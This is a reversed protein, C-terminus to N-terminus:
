IISYLDLGNVCLKASHKWCFDGRDTIMNKVDSMPISFEWRQAMDFDTWFPHLLDILSQGCSQMNKEEILVVCCSSFSATLRQQYTVGRWVISLKNARRSQRYLLMAIRSRSRKSRPYTCITSWGCVISIVLSPTRTMVGKRSCNPWKSTELLVYTSDADMCDRTVLIILEPSNKPAMEADKIPSAMPLFFPMYMEFAATTTPVKNWTVKVCILVRM